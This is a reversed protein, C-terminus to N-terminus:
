SNITPLPSHPPVPKMHHSNSPIPSPFIRSIIPVFSIAPRSIAFAPCNLLQIRFPPFFLSTPFTFRRTQFLGFFPRRKSNNCISEHRYAPPPQVLRPRTLSINIALRACPIASKNTSSSPSANRPPLSHSSQRPFYDPIGPRASVSPQPSARTISFRRVATRIVFPAVSPEFLPPTFKM